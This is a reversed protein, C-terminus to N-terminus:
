RTSTASSTRSARTRRPSSRSTGSRATGGRSRCTTGSSPPADGATDGLRVLTAGVAVTDGADVEFAAVVGDCPAVVDTLAKDTEVEVLPDGEAVRDGVAVHFSM